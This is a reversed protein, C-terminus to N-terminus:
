WVSKLRMTTALRKLLSQTLLQTATASQIMAAQLFLRLVRSVHDRVSERVRQLIFEGGSVIINGGVHVIGHREVVDCATLLYMGKTDGERKNGIGENELNNGVDDGNNGGNDGQIRKCHSKDFDVTCVGGGKPFFGHREIRVDLVIGFLVLTPALVLRIYDSTPAYIASSGGSLRLLPRYPPPRDSWGRKFKLAAPLVCQIALSIAGATGIDCEAPIDM